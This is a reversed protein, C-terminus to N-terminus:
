QSIKGRGRALTGSTKAFTLELWTGERKQLPSETFFTTLTKIFQLIKRLKGIKGPNIDNNIDEQRYEDSFQEEM